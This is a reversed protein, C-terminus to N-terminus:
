LCKQDEKLFQEITEKIAVASSSPAYRGPLGPCLLASIGLERAATFDVGGPTSAIDIITVTRKMKALLESTIVISPITNFIFDFDRVCMGFEKLTGTRDAVLAAQAREDEQRSAVYLNCFMGKLYHSLTHGCKGYGLIACSSQHLNRPSQSIAECIAGEATAISNFRCLSLNSTLDFVRVGKKSAKSKFNEPICGGFLSQGSKLNFLLQNASLKEDFASQNLLNGNKNFPIPCIIRSSVSCIEALSRAADVSSTDCYCRKDPVACLAYHCIRNPHRALEEVLYVQRMDGGIVAYDYNYKM